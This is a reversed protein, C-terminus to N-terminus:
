IITHALNRYLIGLFHLASLHDASLSGINRQFYISGANNGDNKCLGNHLEGNNDTGKDSIVSGAYPCLDQFTQIGTVPAFGTLRNIGQSKQQVNYQNYKKCVEICGNCKIRQHNGIVHLLLTTENGTDSGTLRGAIIQILNQIIDYEDTRDTQDNYRHDRVEKVTHETCAYREATGAQDNDYAYYQLGHLLYFRLHENAVVLSEQFILLMVTVPHNTIM